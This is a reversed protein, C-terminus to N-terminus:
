DGWATIVARVSRRAEELVEASVPHWNHKQWSPGRVCKYEEVLADLMHALYPGANAKGNDLVGITAGELRALPSAQREGTQPLLTTPELVNVTSM